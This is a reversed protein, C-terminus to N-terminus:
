EGVITALSNKETSIVAINIKAIGNLNTKLMTLGILILLACKWLPTLESNEEQQPSKRASRILIVIYSVFLVLLIIGFIRSVEGVNDSMAASTINGKLVFPLGVAGLTLLTIGISLPFDRKM